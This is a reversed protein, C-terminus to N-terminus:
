ALCLTTDEYGDCSEVPYQRHNRLGQLRQFITWSPLIRGLLAQSGGCTESYQMASGYMIACLTSRFSLVVFFYVEDRRLAYMDPKCWRGMKEGAFPGWVGYQESLFRASDDLMEETISAAAHVDFTWSGPPPMTFYLTIRTTSTDSVLRTTHHVHSCPHSSPRSFAYKLIKWHSLPQRPRITSPRNTVTTEGDVLLGLTVVHHGHPSAFNNAAELYTVLVPSSCSPQAATALNPICTVFHM